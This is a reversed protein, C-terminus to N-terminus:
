RRYFTLIMHGEYISIHLLFETLSHLHNQENSDLYPHILSWLVWVVLIACYGKEKKKRQSLNIM